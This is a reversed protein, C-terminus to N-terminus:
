VWLHPFPVQRHIEDRSISEAMVVPNADDVRNAELISQHDDHQTTAATRTTTIAPTVEFPTMMGSDESKETPRGDPYIVFAGAQSSDVTIYPLAIEEAQNGKSQRNARPMYRHEPIRLETPQM